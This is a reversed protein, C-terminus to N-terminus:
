RDEMLGQARDIELERHSRRHFEADESAEQVTERPPGKWGCEDCIAMQVYCGIIEILPEDSM